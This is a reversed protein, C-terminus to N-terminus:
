PGSPPPTKEARDLTQKQEKGLPPTHFRMEGGETGSFYLPFQVSNEASLPSFTWGRQFLDSQPHLRKLRPARAALVPWNVGLTIAEETNTYSTYIKQIDKCINQTVLQGGM